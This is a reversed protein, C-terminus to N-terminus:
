PNHEYRAHLVRQKQEAVAKYRGTFVQEPTFGSLGSHHHEFNYWRFNGFGPKLFILRYESDNL